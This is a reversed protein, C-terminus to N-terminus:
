SGVHLIRAQQASDLWFVNAGPVLLSSTATAYALYIKPRSLLCHPKMASCGCEHRQSASAYAHIVACARATLGVTVVGLLNPNRLYRHSGIDWICALALLSAPSKIHALPLVPM